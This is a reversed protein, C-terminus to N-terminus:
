ISSLRSYVGPHSDPIAIAGCLKSYFEESSVWGIVAYAYGAERMSLLCSLVLERAIGRGRWKESVGLPGLMGKATGDWCCFGVIKKDHVAIYCTTPQQSLALECEGVWGANTRSFQDHVFDTILHRDLAMARKVFVGNREVEEKKSTNTFDYLKVLMDTM